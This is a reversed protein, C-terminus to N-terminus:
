MAGGVREVLGHEECANLEETRQQDSIIAGVTFIPRGRRTSQTWYKATSDIM